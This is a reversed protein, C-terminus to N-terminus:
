AASNRLFRREAQAYFSPGFANLAEAACATLLTKFPEDRLPRMSARLARRSLSKAAAGDRMSIARRALYRLQYSTAAAGHSAVFDPAISAIKKKMRGWTEFQREINASLGDTHIRYLTLEGPIGEIQWDLTLAFRTWAEIDDSQRFTEDFWWDRETEGAPRYAFDNLAARRIVASSGNGIPNRTFVHAATIDKLRPNQRIGIHRGSSDILQSGSFSIGVQPNSELHAVHLELKEPLWLDDADCFGVYEGNAQHIGTNHAGSLGRNAQTIIRLRTDSFTDLLSLTGDTSGDNVVLIEFDEFTQRLLSHLTKAITAASNYAPVVISAKPKRTM